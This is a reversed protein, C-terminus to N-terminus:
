CRTSAWFTKTSIRWRTRSLEALFWTNLLHKPYSHQLVLFGTFKAPDLTGWILTSMTPVLECPFYPHLDEPFKFFFVRTIRILISRLEQNQGFLNFGIEKHLYWPLYNIKKWKKSISLPFDTSNLSCPLSSTTPSVLHWMYILCPSIQTQLFYLRSHALCNDSKIKAVAHYLHSIHEKVSSSTSVWCKM